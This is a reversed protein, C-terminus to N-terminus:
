FRDDSSTHAFNKSLNELWGTRVPTRPIDVEPIFPKIDLLPTEDLVDIKKIYISNEEIRDIEVVSFGIPTPRVPARTAFVGRQHTDLYPTVILKCTEVKHFYYILIIHSFGDLDRIGATYRPYLCVEAPAAKEGAAQVPMDKKNKFPSRIIGIPEIEILKQM